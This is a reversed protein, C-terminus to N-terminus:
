KAPPTEIQLRLADILAQVSNNNRVLFASYDNRQTLRLSTGEAIVDIIRPAGSEASVLWDVRSPANGPRSVNSTVAIGDERATSHAVTISVGQYDGVKGTINTVLVKHFLDVYDKQQQATATHWFRGLSFRAVAAVDVARDIIVRLAASKEALSGSGNVVNTLELAARGMFATAQDAGTEAMARGGISVSLVFASLLSRRALERIPPLDASAGPCDRLSMNDTVTNRGFNM